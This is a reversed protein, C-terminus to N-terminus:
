EFGLRQFLFRLLVQEADARSATLYLAAPVGTEDCRRKVAMAHRPHHTAHNREAPNTDALGSWLFVPADDKTIMGLMDLDARARKGEESDAKAGYFAQTEDSGRQFQDLSKMGLVAPWKTLDYTAQPQMAGAAMLRTSERLVPDANNPDALDDHFALWLSTGAGASGGWSAIRRKDLNYEAARYRLFQIARASDRLIDPLAAQPRFRYNIAAYSVGAALCQAPFQQQMAGQKDGNVFGGGHIYVILPTPKDSKALWLDLVNREHPGYRLNKHTPAPAVAAAAAKKPKQAACPLAAALLLSLFVPRTM